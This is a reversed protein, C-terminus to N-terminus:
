SNGNREGGKIVYTAAMRHLPFGEIQSLKDAIWRQNRLGRDNYKLIPVQRLFDRVSLKSYSRASGSTPSICTEAGYDSIASSFNCCISGASPPNSSFYELYEKSIDDYIVLIEPAIKDCIERAEQPSNVILIRSRKTLAETVYMRSTEELEGVIETLCGFMEELKEGSDTILVSRSSSGHECQCAMELAVKKVNYPSPAIVVVESPGAPLDIRTGFKYQVYRKTADVERGGPGCIMDVKPIVDRGTEKIGLAFAAIARRGQMVYIDDIGSLFSAALIGQSINGKKPYTALIVKTVGAQKAMLAVNMVTTPYDPSSYIGVTDIPLMRYEIGLDYVSATYPSCKEAQKVAKIRIQNAFDLMAGREDDSLLLFTNSVATRPVRLRGDWNGFRENNYRIIADVGYKKVDDVAGIALGDLEETIEGYLLEEQLQDASIVPIKIFYIM